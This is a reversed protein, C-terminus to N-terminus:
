DFYYGVSAFVGTRHLDGEVSVRYDFRRSGNYAVAAKFLWDFQSSATRYDGDISFSATLKASSVIAGISTQVDFVDDSEAEFTHLRGGGFGYLLLHDSM